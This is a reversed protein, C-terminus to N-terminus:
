IGLELLSSLGFLIIIAPQIARTQGDNILLDERWIFLTLNKVSPCVHHDLHRTPTQGKYIDERWIIKAQSRM